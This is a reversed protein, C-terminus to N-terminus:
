FEHRTGNEVMYALSVGPV